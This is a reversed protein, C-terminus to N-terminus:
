SPLPAKVCEGVLEYWVLDFVLDSVLGRGFLCKRRVGQEYCVVLPPLPRGGIGFVFCFLHVTRLPCALSFFFLFSKRGVSFLIWVLKM